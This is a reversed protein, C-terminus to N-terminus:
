PESSHKLRGAGPTGNWSICPMRMTQSRCTLLSSGAYRRAAKRRISGLAEHRDRGRSEASLRVGDVVVEGTEFTELGLACRLLTTKGCGSKGILAAREGAAVSLSVGKLVREPGHSKVLGHFEIM